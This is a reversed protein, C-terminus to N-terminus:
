QATTKSFSVVIKDPFLNTHPTQGHITCGYSELFPVLPLVIMNPDVKIMSAQAAVELLAITSNRMMQKLEVLEAEKQALQRKLKKKRM